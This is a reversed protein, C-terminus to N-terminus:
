IKLSHPYLTASNCPASTDIVSPKLLQALDVHNGNLIQQRLASSVPSPHYLSSAPQVPPAATALTFNGAGHSFVNPHQPLFPTPIPLPPSFSLGTPLSPPAQPPVGQTASQPEEAAANTMASFLPASATNSPVASPLTSSLISPHLSTHACPNLSAQSSLSSFLASIMQSFETVSPAPVLPHVVQGGGSPATPVPQPQPLSPGTVDRRVVGATPPEPSSAPLAPPISDTAANISASYLRFLSAKNANRHFPIGESRLFRQLRAVTWDRINPETQPRPSQQRTSSPAGRTRRPSSGPAPLRPSPTLQRHPSPRLQSRRGHGRHGTRALPPSSAQSRRDAATRTPPIENASSSHRRRRPQPVSIVSRLRSRRRTQIRDPQQQLEPPGTDFLDAFPDGDSDTPCIRLEPDM